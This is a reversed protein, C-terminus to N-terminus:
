YITLNGEGHGQELWNDGAFECRIKYVGAPETTPYLYRAIGGQDGSGTVVTQIVTGDIKFDVMKGEQKQYDYLRRFYAYLNAISGRPVSKPLVWIYPLAKGVTLTATKSAPLYGADGPWECLITRPGAGSGDPVDYPYRAYGETDTPRSIVLTGDVYFRIAKAAVPKNDSRM